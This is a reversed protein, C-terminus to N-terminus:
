TTLRTHLTRVTQPILSTDNRPVERVVELKPSIGGVLCVNNAGPLVPCALSTLTPLRRVRLTGVMDLKSGRGAMLQRPDGFRSFDGVEAVITVANILAVGRMAQIATAVPTTSWSPLHETIELTLRDVRREADTVVDIYDRLVLQQAPHDFQGLKDEAQGTRWGALQVEHGVRSRVRPRRVSVKGGHFGIKRL